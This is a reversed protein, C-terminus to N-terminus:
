TAGTRHIIGPVPSHGDEGLPDDSEGPLRLFEDTTPIVTRRLPQDPDEPALLTMYYPTVGIPLMTGGRRVADREASSLVLM